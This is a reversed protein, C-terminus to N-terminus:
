AVTAGVMFFQMVVQYCHHFLLRPLQQPQQVVARSNM